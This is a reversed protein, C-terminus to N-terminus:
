LCFTALTSQIHGRWGLDTGGRHTRPDRQAVAAPLLQAGQAARGDATEEPEPQPQPLTARLADPAKGGPSSPKRDA